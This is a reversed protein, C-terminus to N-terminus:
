KQENQVTKLEEEARIGRLVLLSSSRAEWVNRGDVNGSSRSYDPIDPIHLNPPYLGLPTLSHQQEQQEPHQEPTFLPSYERGSGDSVPWLGGRPIM